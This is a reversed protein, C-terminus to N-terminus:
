VQPLAYPMDTNKGESSTKYQTVSCLLARETAFVHVYVSRMKTPCALEPQLWYEPQLEWGLNGVDHWTAWSCRVGRSTVCCNVNEFPRPHAHTCGPGGFLMANCVSTVRTMKECVQAAVTAAERVSELAGLRKAREARRREAEQTVCAGCVLDGAKANCVGCKWGRGAVSM